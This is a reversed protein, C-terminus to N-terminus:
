CAEASRCPPLKAVVFRGAGNMGNELNEALRNEEDRLANRRHLLVEFSLKVFTM